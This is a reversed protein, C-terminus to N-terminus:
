GPVYETKNEYFAHAVLLLKCMAAIVALKKPKHHNILRQYFVAIKKNNKIACLTPLYLMKRIHRNGNKSIKVKGKVLSGSKKDIPDLGVLATIQARNTGQYHRFLALLSFALKEGIGSISMLRQFDKALSPHKSLYSKIESLLEEELHQKRKLESQLLKRLTPDTSHNLFSAGLSGVINECQVRPITGDYLLIILATHISLNVYPETLAYLHFEV